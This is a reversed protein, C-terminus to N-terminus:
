LEWEVDYKELAKELREQSAKERKNLQGNAIRVVADRIQKAIDGEIYPRQTKFGLM